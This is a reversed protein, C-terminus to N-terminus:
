LTRWPSRMGERRGPQTPLRGTDTDTQLLACGKENLQLDLAARPFSGAAAFFAAMQKDQVADGVRRQADALLVNGYVSSLELTVAM